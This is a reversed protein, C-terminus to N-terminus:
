ASINKTARANLILLKIFAYIIVLRILLAGWDIGYEAVAAQYLFISSFIIGGLCVLYYPARQYINRVKYVPIVGATIEFIVLMVSMVRLNSTITDQFWFTGIADAIGFILCVLRAVRDDHYVANM